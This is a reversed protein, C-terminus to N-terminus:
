NWRYSLGASIYSIGYGVEGYFSFNPRFYYRLGAHIGIFGYSAAASFATNVMIIQRSHFVSLLIDPQLASIVTM